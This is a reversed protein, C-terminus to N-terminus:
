SSSAPPRAAADDGLDRSLVHMGDVRPMKLDCVIVDYARERVRALAEEGDGARDVRFGADTLAEAVAAALAEEDEIVLGPRRRPVDRCRRRPRRTLPACTRRRRGAAGPLVVRRPRRPSWGSAAATSRCSPTPWRCVWARERASRSRRSSRTSSRRSCITPCARATTTSRSCSPTASRCRALHPRGAHRPWQASLMAQEANIVLNLLVQQIQHPDAFVQPLGAALADIFTINTVRQEYARLALTERVVQNLDVM